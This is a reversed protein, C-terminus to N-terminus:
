MFSVFIFFAMNPITVAAAATDAFAWLLTVNYPMTSLPSTLVDHMKM